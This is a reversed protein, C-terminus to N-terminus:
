IILMSRVCLTQNCVQVSNRLSSVALFNVPLPKGHIDHLAAAGSAPCRLAFGALRAPVSFLAPTLSALADGAQGVCVDTRSTNSRACLSVKYNKTNQLLVPQFHIAVKAPM